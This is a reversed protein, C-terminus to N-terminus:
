DRKRETSAEILAWVEKADAENDFVQHTFPQSNYPEGFFGLIKYQDPEQTNVLSDFLEDGVDGFGALKEGPALFVCYRTGRAIIRSQDLM